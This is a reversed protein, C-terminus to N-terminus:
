FPSNFEDAVGSVKSSGDAVVGVINGTTAPQEVLLKVPKLGLSDFSHPVEAPLGLRNKAECTPQKMTVIVRGGDMAVGRTKNFGEDKSVVITKKKLFLVEDCWESVCGSGKIHLSPRWFNFSDGDPNQFKDITEHCTFVIYRGQNWLATYGIMLSQWFAEVAQYGKGFGIDDITKKGAAAAVSGMILKELWDVTDTVITQYDSYYLEVLNNQYEALSTIRETKECDIDNLGDELNLFVPKPFHSALTSKGSGNEGYLLVRRAKPTKGKTIKL